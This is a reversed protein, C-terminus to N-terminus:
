FRRASATRVLVWLRHKSCFISFYHIGRYVGTKSYIFNPNLPTLIIYTHKRSTNFINQFLTRLLKEEKEAINQIRDNSKWTLLPVLNESRFLRNNSILSASIVLTSQMITNAHKSGMIPSTMVFSNTMISM